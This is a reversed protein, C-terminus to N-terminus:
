YHIYCNRIRLTQKNKEDHENRKVILKERKREEGEREEEGEEKRKERESEASEM